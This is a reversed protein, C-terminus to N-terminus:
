THLALWFCASPKQYLKRYGTKVLETDFSLNQHTPESVLTLRCVNIVEKSILFYMPILYVLISQSLRMKSQPSTYIFRDSYSSGPPDQQLIM